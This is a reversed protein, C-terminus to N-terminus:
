QFCRAWPHLPVTISGAFVHFRISLASYTQRGCCLTPCKRSCEQISESQARQNPGPRRGCVAIVSKGVYLIHAIQPGPRRGCIEWRVFYSCNPSWSPSWLNGLTCFIIGFIVWIHDLCSGFMVWVHGLYSGFIVWVHGM